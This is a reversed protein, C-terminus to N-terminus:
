YWNNNLHFNLAASPSGYRNQLYILGADIQQFGNTTKAIGTGGWTGDLFQAIGFATSTPNDAMPNWTVASSGAGPSGSEKNWLQILAPLEDPGWGYQEFKSLAYAGFGNPDAVGALGPGGGGQPAGQMGGQQQGQPQFGGMMDQYYSMYDAPATEEDAMLDTYEGGLAMPPGGMVPDLGVIKMTAHLRNALVDEPNMPQGGGYLLNYQTAPDQMGPNQMMAGSAGGDALEAHWPEGGVPFHLGVQAALDHLLEYNDTTFDIALGTEHHSSGPPAALNGTGNLYAQYLEAQEAQTRVGSGFTIQGGSHDVIWQGASLLQPNMGNPNWGM